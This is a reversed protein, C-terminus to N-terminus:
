VVLVVICSGPPHSLSVHEQPTLFFLLSLSSFGQGGYHFNLVYYGWVLFHLIFSHSSTNPDYFAWHELLISLLPLTAPPCQPM